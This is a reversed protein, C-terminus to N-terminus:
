AAYRFGGCPRMSVSSRHSSNATKRCDWRRYRCQVGQKVCARALALPADLHVTAFTQGGEERLIGAVNVVADVGALLPLWSEPTPLQQLDCDREDAALARGRARVGRLVRWGRERLAAVIYGGLFGAAGVVLVTRSPEVESEM